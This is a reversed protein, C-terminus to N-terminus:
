YIIGIPIVDSMVGHLTKSIDSNLMFQEYFKSKFGNEQWIVFMDEGAQNYIRM